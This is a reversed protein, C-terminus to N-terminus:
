ERGTKGIIKGAYILSLLAIGISILILGIIIKGDINFTWGITLSIGIGLIAVGWGLINEPNHGQGKPILGEEIMAMKEKHELYIAMGPLGFIFILALIPVVLTLLENPEIMLGLM